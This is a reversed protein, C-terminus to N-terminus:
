FADTQVETATGEMIDPCDEDTLDCWGCERISPVRRPPTPSCLRGMLAALSEEFGEAMEVDVEDTTYVVRGKVPKGLSRSLGYMYLMVQFAHSSSHQGSKCDIVITEDDMVAVLDPKGEITGLKGKLTLRNQEEVSVTYGRAEYDAQTTKVLEGHLLLWESLDKERKTFSNGYHQAKFWIAWECSDDGALLRPLWTAWVYPGGRRIEAM